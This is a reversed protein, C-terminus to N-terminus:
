YDTEGYLYRWCRASCVGDETWGEPMDATLIRGCEACREVEVEVEVVEVNNTNETNDM